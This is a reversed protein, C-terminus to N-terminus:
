PDKLAPFFKVFVVAALIYLAFAVGIVAAFGWSVAILVAGSAGIVSFFGNIGWAWPM